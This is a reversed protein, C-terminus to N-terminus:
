PSVSVQISGGLAFTFADQLYTELNITLLENAPVQLIASRFASPSYSVGGVVGVRQAYNSRVSDRTVITGSVPGTISYCYTVPGGNATGGFNIGIRGTPTSIQVSAQVVTWGAVGGVLTSFEAYQVSALSSLYAVTDSLRKITAAQSRMIGGQTTADNGSDQAAVNLNREVSEVRSEIARGWQMSEPPLNMQPMTSM